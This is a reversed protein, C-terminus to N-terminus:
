KNFRACGGDNWEKQWQNVNRTGIAVNRSTEQNYAAAGTADMKDVDGQLKGLQDRIVYRSGMVVLNMGPTLQMLGLGMEASHSLFMLGDRDEIDVGLQVVDLATLVGGVVKVTPAASKYAGTISKRWSRNGSADLGMKALRYGNEYIGEAYGTLEAPYGIADWMSRLSNFAGSNLNEGQTTAIRNLTAVNNNIKAALADCDSKSLQANNPAVVM